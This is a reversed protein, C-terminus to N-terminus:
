VLVAAAQALGPSGRGRTRRDRCPQQRRLLGRTAVVSVGSKGGAMWTRTPSRAGAVPTPPPTSNRHRRSPAARTSPLSGPGNKSWPMRQRWVPQKHGKRRGCTPTPFDQSSFPSPLVETLLDSIRALEAASTGDAKDPVEWPVCLMPLTLSFWVRTLEIRENEDQM